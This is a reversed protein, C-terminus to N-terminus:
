GGVLQHNEGHNGMSKGCINMIDGMFLAKRGAKLNIGPGPGIM